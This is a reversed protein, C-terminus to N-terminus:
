ADVRCSNDDGGGDGEVARDLQLSAGSGETVRSDKKLNYASLCAKLADDYARKADPLQQREAIVAVEV